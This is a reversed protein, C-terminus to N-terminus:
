TNIYLKLIVEINDLIGIIQDIFKGNKYIIFTPYCNINLHSLIKSVCVDDVNFNKMFINKDLLNKSLKNYLKNTKDCENSYFYFIVIKNSYIYKELNEM